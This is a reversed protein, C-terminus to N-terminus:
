KKEPVEWVVAKKVYAPPTYELVPKLASHFCSEVCIHCYICKFPDWTIFRKEEDVKIADAPCLRECDGCLDCKDSDHEIRGRFGEFLFPERKEFPYKITAPGTFLNKLIRPIMWPM